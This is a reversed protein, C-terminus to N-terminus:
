RSEFGYYWCDLPLLGIGEVAQGGLYAKNEFSNAYM